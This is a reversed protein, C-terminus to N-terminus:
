DFANFLAQIRELDSTDLGAALCCQILIRAKLPALNGAAIFGLASDRDRPEIENDRVVPGNAVRSARVVLCGQQVARGLAKRMPAPMTGAGTAALVIARVKRRCHWDVIAPDADVHQWVLAAAPLSDENLKAMTAFSPRERAAARAAARGLRWNIRGGVVAAQAEREGGDFADCALTQRKGVSQAPWVRDAFVVLAGRGAAATDAAVLCASRLNAPGDASLATAPRMAGTLVLAKDRPCLLDLAFATEELTDTGHTIAVADIVPDRAAERIRRALTVWHQSGLHQSGLSFPQEGIISFREAMGQTDAILETIGIAGPQYRNPDGAPSAGAITGGTGILLLRRKRTTM